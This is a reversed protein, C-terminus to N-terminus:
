IISFNFGDHICYRIGRVAQWLAMADDDHDSVSVLEGKAAIYSFSSLQIALRDTMEISAEDGRPLRMDGREFLVGLAPLGENLSYKDTNTYHPIAPLGMDIAMDYFIKQGGVTEIVIVDPAFDLNIAGDYKM